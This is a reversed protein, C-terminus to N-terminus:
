LAGLGEQRMTDGGRGGGGSHLELQPYRVTQARCEAIGGAAGGGGSQIRLLPSNVGSSFSDQSYALATTSSPNMVQQSTQQTNQTSPPRPQAKPPAGGPDIPFPM